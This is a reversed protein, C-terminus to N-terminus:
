CKNIMEDQKSMQSNSKHPEYMVNLKKTLLMLIALILNMMKSVSM